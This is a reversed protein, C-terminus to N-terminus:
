RAPKVPAETSSRSDYVHVGSHQLEISLGDTLSM